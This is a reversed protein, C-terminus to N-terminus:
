VDMHARQCPSQSATRIGSLAESVLHPGTQEEGSVQQTGAVRGKLAPTCTDATRQEGAVAAGSSVMCSAQLAEGGKMGDRSISGYSALFRQHGRGRGERYIQLRGPLASPPM